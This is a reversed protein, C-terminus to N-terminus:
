LLSSILLCLISLVFVDELQCLCFYFDRYGVIQSIPKPEEVVIVLLVCM